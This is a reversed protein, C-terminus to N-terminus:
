NICDTELGEDEIKNYSLNLNKLQDIFGYSTLTHAGADTIRNYRLDLYRLSSLFPSQSLFMMGDSGIANYSLDLSILNDFNSSEALDRLRYDMIGNGNLNLNTINKFYLSRALDVRYFDNNGALDLSSLLQINELMSLVSFAERVHGLDLSTIGSSVLRRLHGRRNSVDCHCIETYSVDLTSLCRGYESELISILGYATMNSGRLGLETLRQLNTSGALETVGEDGILRNINLILRTLNGLYPSKAMLSMSTNGIRNWSLDLSTVNAMYHSRALSQVDKDGIANCTLDLCTLKSFHDTRVLDVGVAEGDPYNRVSLHTLNGLSPIKELAQLFTGGDIRCDVVDLSSLNVLHSIHQMENIRVLRVVGLRLTKLTSPLIRLLNIEFIARSLDIHEIDQFVSHESRFLSM